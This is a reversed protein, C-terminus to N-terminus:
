HFVDQIKKYHVVTTKEDLVKSSVIFFDKLYEAPFYTDCEYSEDIFTLYIEDVYNHSFANKWVTAGGIIIDDSYGSFHISERSLLVVHRGPLPPLETNKGVLLRKGKTFEKFWQLDKSNKWPIKGQFGIGWSKEVCAIIKM